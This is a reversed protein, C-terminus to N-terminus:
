EINRINCVHLKPDNEVFDKDALSDNFFIKVNQQFHKTHFHKLTKMLISWNNVSIIFTVFFTPPGFQKIM